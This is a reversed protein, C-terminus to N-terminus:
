NMHNEYEFCQNSPYRNVEASLEGWLPLKDELYSELNKCERENEEDQHIIYVRNCNSFMDVSIIGDKTEIDTTGYLVKSGCRGQEVCATMAEILDNKLTTLQM